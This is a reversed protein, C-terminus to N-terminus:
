RIAGFARALRSLGACAPTYLFGAGAREDSSRFRKLSLFGHSILFSSRNGIAFETLKQPIRELRIAARALLRVSEVSREVHDNGKVVVRFQFEQATGDHVPRQDEDVDGHKEDHAALNEAIGQGDNAAERENRAHQEAFRLEGFPDYPGRRRQREESREKKMRAPQMK